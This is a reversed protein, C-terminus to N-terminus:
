IGEHLRTRSGLFKIIYEERESYMDLIRIHNEEVEYFVINKAAYLYYYECDIGYMERISIGIYHYEKLQQIRHDIEELVKERTSKGYKLELDNRLRLIKEQYDPTYQLEKM